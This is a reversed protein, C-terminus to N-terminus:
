PFPVPPVVVGLGPADPLAIRGGEARPPPAVDGALWPSTALGHACDGPLAAAAHVAAWCGVASDVTTTVVWELGAARVQRAADLTARLGGLVMPKLVVRRVARAALIRELGLQKRSEDIAIAFPVEGQLSALVELSPEALPEEVADVPLAALALLAGRAAAESWARNPDLRLRAGPPLLAAAERVFSLEEPLPLMGAKVKLVTFGQE